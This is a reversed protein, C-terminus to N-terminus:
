QTKENDDKTAALALRDQIDKHTGQDVTLYAGNAFQYAVGARLEIFGAAFKELPLCFKRGTVSEGSVMELNDKM